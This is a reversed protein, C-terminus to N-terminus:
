LGDIQEVLMTYTNDGKHREVKVPLFGLSPACWLYTFRNQKGVRIRRMKITNLTGLVTEIKETGLSDFRYTKLRGGDAIDYQMTTNGKQLDQMLALMYSFKDQTGNPISMKWPKAGINNTVKLQQWDFNLHANKRPKNSDTYEYFHPVIRNDIVNLTSQETIAGPKFIAALGTTQMTAKYVYGSQTAQLHHIREGITTDNRSVLYKAKFPTLDQEAYCSSSFLLSSLLILSLRNLLTRLNFDMKPYNKIM